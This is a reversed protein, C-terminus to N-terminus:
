VELQGKCRTPCAASPVRQAPLAGPQAAQGRWVGGQCSASCLHPAEWGPRPRQGPCQEHGPVHWAPAPDPALAHRGTVEPGGGFTCGRSLFCLGSVKGRRLGLRSLPVHLGRSLGRGVGGEGAAAVALAVDRCLLETVGPTQGAGGLEGQGPPGASLQDEAHLVLGPVTDLPHAWSLSLSSPFPLRQRSSVPSTPGRCGHSCFGWCWDLSGPRCSPFGM